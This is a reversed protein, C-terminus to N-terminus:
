KKRRLDIRDKLLLAFIILWGVGGTILEFASIVDAQIIRVIATACLFIIILMSFLTLHFKM